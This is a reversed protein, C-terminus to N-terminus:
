QNALPVGDFYSTGTLMFTARARIDQSSAGVLVEFEGAEAVWARGLDDYYALEDRTLPVTVTQCEDPELQIKRFAKLEKEPRHLTSAIDRVYVQVIEKGRREGSNRIDISVQLTDEPGMSEASLRLRTYDFTTYSLGFGFPFLPAIKKKEYYRYGVFLGEGYHVKDNEGPYNIYAPNDELRVPFTQPLKGSPTIDGFLIDAIANGCEQGPFWAQVVAAVHELWPMTLPSGSNIVVITRKNVAAVREILTNQEGVLDMHPRDFGESEWEGSTGVCVIAVDSTAALEVARELAGEPVPPLCGLRLVFLMDEENNRFELTLQYEHGAELSVEAQVETTGM